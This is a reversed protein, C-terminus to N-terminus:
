INKISGLIRKYLLRTYFNLIQIALSNAGIMTLVAKGIYSLAKPNNDIKENYIIDSGVLAVARSIYYKILLKLTHEGSLPDSIILDAVEDLKDVDINNNSVLEKYLEAYGDDISKLATAMHYLIKKSENDLNEYDDNDLLEVIKKDEYNSFIEILKKHGELVKNISDRIIKNYSSDKIINYYRKIDFKNQYGYQSGLTPFQNLGTYFEILSKCLLINGLKGKLGNYEEKLRYTTFGMIVMSMYVKSALMLSDSNYFLTLRKQDADKNSNAQDGEYLLLRYVLPELGLSRIIRKRDEESINTTVISHISDVMEEIMNLLFHHKMFYSVDNQNENGSIEKINVELIDYALEMYKFSLLITINTPLDAKVKDIIKAIENRLPEIDINEIIKIFGQDVIVKKSDNYKELIGELFLKDFEKVKSNDKNIFGTYDSIFSSKSIYDKLQELEEGRGYNILLFSLRHLFISRVDHIILPIFRMSFNENSNLINSISELSVRALKFIWFNDGKAAKEYGNVLKIEEDIINLTKKKDESNNKSISTM